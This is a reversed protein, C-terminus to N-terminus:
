LEIIVPQNTKRLKETSQLTSGAHLADVLNPSPVRGEASKDYVGAATSMLTKLKRGKRKAFSSWLTRPTANRSGHHGVKYLDVDELLEKTGEQSLAWQWNELQADGPFLLKKGKVEFLLILSTNNLFNDLIRVIGLANKKLAADAHEVFWRM